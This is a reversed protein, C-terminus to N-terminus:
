VRLSQRSELRCIENQNFEMKRNLNGSDMIHLAEGLQRRLADKYQGIVVFKFRPCELDTPHKEMRHALQFSKKSWNLKNNEHELVRERIPRSTEGVYCFTTEVNPDSDANQLDKDSDHSDCTADKPDSDHFDCAADKPDSDHSDCAADKPNGIVTDEIEQFGRVAVLPNECSVERNGDPIGQDREPDHFDCAAVKPDGVAALLDDIEFSKKEKGNQCKLCTAKYSVCLVVPHVSEAMMKVYSVSREGLAALHLQSDPRLLM